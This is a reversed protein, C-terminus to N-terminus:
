CAKKIEISTVFDGLVNIHTKIFDLAENGSIMIDSYYEITNSEREYFTEIENEFQEGTEELLKTLKEELFSLMKNKTLESLLAAEDRTYGGGKCILDMLMTENKM